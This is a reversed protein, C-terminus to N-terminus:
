ASFLFRIVDADQVVYDKGEVRLVGAARCGAEGGLRAYDAFAAVEARIFGREFDTHIVGAARPARWGRRISWARAEKENHTFFSILGLTQYAM